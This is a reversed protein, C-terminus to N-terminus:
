QRRSPEVLGSCRWTCESSMAQASVKCMPQADHWQTRSDFLATLCGPQPKSVCDNACGETHRWKAPLM